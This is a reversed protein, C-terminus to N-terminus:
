PACGDAVEHFLTEYEAVVNQLGFRRCFAPNPQRTCQPWALARAISEALGVPDTGRVLTLGCGTEAIERLGSPSDTALSPTGLALAELLSNPLGEYRSVLLFLDAHRFYLYPNSQFGAFEVAQILGLHSRQARLEGELPGQGLITLKAGPLRRRVHVMSELLLHFQKERSLRGAAVLHPGPGAYPSDGAALRAISQADVPNYIRALRARPVGFSETLDTLSYDCPCVIRDAQGYFGRYLWEFVRAHPTDSLQASVVTTERVLLKLRPPLLRRGLILVLNLYGLTSFVIHPRLRWAVRAVGPIAYRARNAKLDHLPVDEPVDKLYPGEARVVGLHCEFRARDLQQLLTVIVREAGGGRLSSVVFLIRIRRGPALRPRVLDASETASIGM